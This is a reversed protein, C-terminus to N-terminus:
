KNNYFRKILHQYLKETSDQVKNELLTLKDMPNIMEYDKRSSEDIELYNEFASINHLWKKQLQLTKDDNDDYVDMITEIVKTQQKYLFQKYTKIKSLQDDKDHEFLLLNNLLTNIERELTRVIRIYEEIEREKKSSVDELVKRVYESTTMGEDNALVEIKYKLSSSLRVVLQESKETQMFMGEQTVM